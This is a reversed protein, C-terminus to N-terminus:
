RLGDLQEQATIAAASGAFRLVVEEYTRMARARQGLSELCRGAKLLADPVKNGDPYKEVTTTYSELAAAFDGRAWRSEGIWFLANDALDSTPFRTLFLRFAREAEPYKQQHFLAYGQDYLEEGGPAPDSAVATSATGTPPPLPQPSPDPEELEFEEVGGFGPLEVDDDIRTPPEAQYRTRPEVRVAGAAEAKGPGVRARLEALEEALRQIELDRMVLERRLEVVRSRLQEAEEKADDARAPQPALPPTAGTESSRLSAAEGAPQAGM